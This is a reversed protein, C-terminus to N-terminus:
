KITYKDPTKQKLCFVAYSIRMLSQIESTHEESRKTNRSATIDKPIPKTLNQRPTEGGTAALWCLPSAATSAACSARLKFYRSPPCPSPQLLSSSIPLAAHLALTHLYPYIATTATVICFFSFVSCM